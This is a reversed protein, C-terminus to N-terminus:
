DDFSRIKRTDFMIDQQYHEYESEKCDIWGEDRDLMYQYRIERQGLVSQRVNEAVQEVRMLEGLSFTLYTCLKSLRDFMDAIYIFVIGILAAPASLAIFILCYAFGFVRWLTITRGLIKM